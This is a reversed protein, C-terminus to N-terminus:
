VLLGTVPAQLGDQVLVKKKGDPNIELIRPKATNAEGSEAVILNDGNFIATTPVSLNTVAAEIQYGKPLTIGSTDIRRAYVSNPLFLFLVFTLLAFLKIM